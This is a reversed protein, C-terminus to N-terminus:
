GGYRRAILMGFGLHLGGFGAGLLPNGWAAPGFLAIAGLAMLCGGLVPVIRISYAGAAVFAAGYLLLWTAPLLAFLGESQLVFTLLAGALLPPLLGLCFKQTPGARLPIGTVRTKHLISAVAIILALGAETVWVRLWAVDTTQASALATAAIATVGILAMGWGPVDTFRASQEMAERIYRLNEAAHQDVSPLRHRRQERTRRHTLM